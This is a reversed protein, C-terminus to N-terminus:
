WEHIQQDFADIADQLEKGDLEDVKLKGNPCGHLLRYNSKFARNAIRRLAIEALYFFWANELVNSSKTSHNGSGSFGCAQQGRSSLV